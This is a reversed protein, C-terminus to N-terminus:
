ATDACRKRVVAQGDNAITLTQGDASTRIELRKTWSEGEGTFAADIAIKTANLRTVRTITGVSEHFILERPKIQLELEAGADACRDKAGTWRGRFAVPVMNTKEAPTAKKTGPATTKPRHGSADSKKASDTPARDTRNNAPDSERGCASLGVILALPLFMSPSLARMSSFLM